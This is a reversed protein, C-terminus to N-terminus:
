LRTYKRRIGMPALAPLLGLTIAYKYPPCPVILTGDHDGSLLFIANTLLVSVFYRNRLLNIFTGTRTRLTANNTAKNSELVSAARRLGDAFSSTAAAVAAQTAASFLRSGARMVTNYSTSATNQPVVDLVIRAVGAATASYKLVAGCRGVTRQVNPSCCMRM